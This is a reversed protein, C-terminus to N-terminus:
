AQRARRALLRERVGAPPFQIENERRVAEEMRRREELYADVDERSWLYYTIVAYIDTLNLSPYKLLIEEAASGSKFANIITELRVRTGGVCLVGADDAQIPPPQAIFPIPLKM